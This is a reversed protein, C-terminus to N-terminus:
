RDPPLEYYNILFKTLNMFPDTLTHSAYKEGKPDKTFLLILFKPEYAPFYGFFTHLFRDEYYGLGDERLLQATGTKAAVSYHEMKREGGLLAKDVVQVLMRTIEESTEKKIVQKGKPFDIKESLGGKYDIREIIHPTILYGGNGLVAMARATSVPTLAIGQGFSASAFEIDRGESLNSILNLSEGPLDIDTKEGLGFSYFYDKFREKGLKQMAFIAGTNLSENLVGQMSVTGRGKKDFNYVTRGNLEVFGNDFYTTKASISGADLAAAMTLPKIISGMEYVGEVIENNFVSVNDEEQFKNLDFNPM